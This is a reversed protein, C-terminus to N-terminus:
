VNKKELLEPNQHINGIIELDYLLELDFQTELAGHRELHYLAWYGFHHWSVLGFDSSIDNEYIDNGNKDKCGTFRDPEKIIYIDHITNMLDRYRDPSLDRYENEVITMKSMLCLDKLTFFVMRPIFYPNIENGLYARFKLESM